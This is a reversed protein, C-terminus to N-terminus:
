VRSAMLRGLYRGEDRLAHGVHHVHGGAHSLPADLRADLRVVDGRGAPVQEGGIRLLGRVPREGEGCDGGVGVPMLLFLMAEGGLEEVGAVGGIDARPQM